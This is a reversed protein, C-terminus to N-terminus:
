RKQDMERLFRREVLSLSALQARYDKRQVGSRHTSNDPSIQMWSCLDGIMKEPDHCLEDYHCEYLQSSPIASRASQWRNAYDLMIKRVQARLDERNYNSIATMPLVQDYLRCTSLYVESWDRMIHIFRASPDLQRITPFRLINAPNKSIYTSGPHRIQAKIVQTQMCDYWSKQAVLSSEEQWYQWLRSPHYHCRYVGGGTSHLLAIEDEQPLDLRMEMDDM